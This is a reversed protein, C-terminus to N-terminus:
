SRSRRFQRRPASIRRRLPAHRVRPDCWRHCYHCQLRQSHKIKDTTSGDALTTAAEEASEPVDSTASTSRVDCAPSAVSSHETVGRQRQRYRRAREAHKLSGRWSSQYRRDSGRQAQRRASCACGVSCYRQGRDCTTCIFAAAGCCACLFRRITEQPRPCRKGSSGAASRCQYPM